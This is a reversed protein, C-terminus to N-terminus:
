IREANCSGTHCRIVSKGIAFRFGFVIDIYESGMIQMETENIASDNFRKLISVHKNMTETENRRSRAVGGGDPYVDFLFLFSLQSAM